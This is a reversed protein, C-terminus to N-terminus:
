PQWRYAIKRGRAREVHNRAAPLGAEVQAVTQRLPRACILSRVHGKLFEPEIHSSRLLTSELEIRGDVRIRVRTPPRGDLVERSMVLGLRLRADTLACRGGLTCRGLRCRLRRRQLQLRRPTTCDAPARDPLVSLLLRALRRPPPPRRLALLELLLVLLELM